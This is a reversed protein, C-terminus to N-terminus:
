SMKSVLTNDRQYEGCWNEQSMLPFPQHIQFGVPNKAPLVLQGPPYRRCMIQSLNSPDALRFRCNGCCEIHKNM